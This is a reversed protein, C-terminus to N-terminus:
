FVSDDYSNDSTFAAPAPANGRQQQSPAAAQQSGGNGATTHTDGGLYARDIYQVRIGHSIGKGNKGEYERPWYEGCLSVLHGKEAKETMYKYAPSGENATLDFFVSQKQDGMGKNVVVSLTAFKSTKEKGQFTKIEGPRVVYANFINTLVTSM